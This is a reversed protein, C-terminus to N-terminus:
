SCKTRHWVRSSVPQNVGALPLFSPINIKNGAGIFGVCTNVFMFMNYVNKMSVAKMNIKKQHRNKSARQLMKQAARIAITYCNRRRGYFHQFICWICTGRYRPRYFIM